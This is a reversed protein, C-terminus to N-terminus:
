ILDEQYYIVDYKGTFVLWALKLRRHLCLCRKRRPKTTYWKSDIDTENTLDSDVHLLNPMVFM